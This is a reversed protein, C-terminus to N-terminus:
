SRQIRTAFHRPHHGEKELGPVDCTDSPCTGCVRGSVREVLVVAVVDVDVLCGRGGLEDQGSHIITKLEEM